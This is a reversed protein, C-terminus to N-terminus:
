LRTVGPGRKYEQRTPILDSRTSFRRLERARVWSTSSVASNLITGLAWFVVTRPWLIFGVRSGTIAGVTEVVAMFAVLFTTLALGRRLPWSRSKIDAVVWERYQAPVRLGFVLYALRTALPPRPENM